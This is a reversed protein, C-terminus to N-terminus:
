MSSTCIADCADLMDYLHALVKCLLLFLICSDFLGLLEV